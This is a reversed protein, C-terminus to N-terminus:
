RCVKKVRSFGEVIQEMVRIITFRMLARISSIPLFYQSQLSSLKTSLGALEKSLLEVYSSHEMGSQITVMLLDDVWDIM